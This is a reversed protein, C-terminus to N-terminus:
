EFSSWQLVEPMCGSGAPTVWWHQLRQAARSCCRHAAAASPAALHSPDCRLPWFMKVPHVSCQQQCSIQVWRLMEPLRQSAEVLQKRLQENQQSLDTAQAEARGAAEELRYFSAQQEEAAKGRLESLQANLKRM